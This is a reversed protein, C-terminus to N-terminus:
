IYKLIEDAINRHGLELPHGNPGQPTNYAWEVFGYEPFGIFRDTNLRDTWIKIDTNDAYKAFLEQNGFASCYFYDVNNAVLVDQLAVM